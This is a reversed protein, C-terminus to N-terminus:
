AIQKLLKGGMLLYLFSFVDVEYAPPPMMMMMVMIKGTTNIVRLLSM